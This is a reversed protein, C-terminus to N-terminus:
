RTRFTQFLHAPNQMIFKRFIVVTNEFVEDLEESFYSLQWEVDYLLVELLMLMCGIMKQQKNLASNYRKSVLIISYIMIYIIKFFCSSVSLLIERIVFYALCHNIIQINSFALNVGYDIVNLSSKWLNSINYHVYANNM